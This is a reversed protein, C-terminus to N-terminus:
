SILDNSSGPPPLTTWPNAPTAIASFYLAVTGCLALALYPGWALVIPSADGRIFSGLVFGRTAAIFAAYGLLALFGTRYPHRKTKARRALALALLMISAPTLVIALRSHYSFELLRVRQETDRLAAKAIERRTEAFSLEGIGPPLPKGLVATRYSQNSAPVLWGIWLFLAATYLLALVLARKILRGDPFRDRLAVPVAILLAAPITLAIASPLLWLLWTASSMGERRLLPSFTVANMVIAALLGFLVSLAILRGLVAADNGLWERPTTSIANLALARALDFYGAWRARGPEAEIDTLV